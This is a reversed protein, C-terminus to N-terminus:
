EKALAAIASRVNDPLDNWSSILAALDGPANARTANAAFAGPEVKRPEAISNAAWAPLSEADDQLDAMAVHTYVGM